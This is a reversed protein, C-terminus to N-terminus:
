YMFTIKVFVKDQKNTSQRVEVFVASQGHSKKRQERTEPGQDHIMGPRRQGNQDHAVAASEGCLRVFCLEHSWFPSNLPITMFRRSSRFDPAAQAARLAMGPKLKVGAKAASPVKAGCGDFQRLKSILVTTLGVADLSTM